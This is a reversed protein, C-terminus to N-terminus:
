LRIKKEAFTLRLLFTAYEKINRSEVSMLSSRFATSSVMQREHPKQPEHDVSLDVAEGGRSLVARSDGVNAVILHKGNDLLFATTATSGVRLKMNTSGMGLIRCRDLAM